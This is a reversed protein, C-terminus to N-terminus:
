PSQDLCVYGFGGKAIPTVSAMTFDNVLRPPVRPTPPPAEVPLHYLQGGLM